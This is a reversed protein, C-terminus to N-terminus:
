KEPTTGRNEIGLIQISDEPFYIEEHYDTRKSLAWRMTEETVPEEFQASGNTNGNQHIMKDPVLLEVRKM